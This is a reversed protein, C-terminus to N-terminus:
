SPLDGGAAGLTDALMSRVREARRTVSRAAQDVVGEVEELRRALREDIAPQPATSAAPPREPAEERGPASEPEPPAIVITPTAAAGHEGGKRAFRKPRLYAAPM